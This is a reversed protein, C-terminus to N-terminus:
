LFFFIEIAGDYINNELPLKAVQLNGMANGIAV